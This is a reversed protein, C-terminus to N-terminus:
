NASEFAKLIYETIKDAANLGDEHDLTEPLALLVEKYLLQEAMHMMSPDKMFRQRIAQLGSLFGASEEVKIIKSPNFTEDRYSFDYNIEQRIMSDILLVKGNIFGNGKLYEQVLDIHDRLNKKDLEQVAMLQHVEDKGLYEEIQEDSLAKPSYTENRIRGLLEKLKEETDRPVYSVSLENEILRKAQEYHGEDINDNIEKLIEEYYNM